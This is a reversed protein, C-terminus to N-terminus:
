DGNDAWNVQILKKNKFILEATLAEFEYIISDAKVYAPPGLVDEVARQSVGIKLSNPLEITQGFIEIKGVLTVQNSSKVHYLYVNASDFVLKERVDIQEPTYTNKVEETSSKRIKGLSDPYLSFGFKVFTRIRDESESGYIPHISLILCIFGILLGVKKNM